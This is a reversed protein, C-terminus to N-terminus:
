PQLIAQVPSIIGALHSINEKGYFQPGASGRDTKDGCLHVRTRQEVVERDFAPAVIKVTLQALSVCALSATVSVLHPISERRDLQAKKRPESTIASVASLLVAPPKVQLTQGEGSVVKARM